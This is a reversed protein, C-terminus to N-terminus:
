IKTIHLYTTVNCGEFLNHIFRVKRQLVAFCCNTTRLDVGTVENWIPVENGHPTSRCLKCLNYLSFSLYSDPHTTVHM